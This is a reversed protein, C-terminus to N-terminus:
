VKNSWEREFGVLLGLALTLAVKVAIGSAPFSINAGHFTRLWDHMRDHRRTDIRFSVLEWAEM